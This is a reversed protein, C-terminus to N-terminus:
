DISIRMQSEWFILRVTTLLRHRAANRRSATPTQVATWTPEIKRRAASRHGSRIAIWAISRRRGSYDWHGSEPTFRVDGSCADISMRVGNWQDYIGTTILVSKAHDQAQPFAIRRRSKML